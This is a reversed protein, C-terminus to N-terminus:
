HQNAQAQRKRRQSERENRLADRDRQVANKLSNLRLQNADIPKIPKISPPKAPKSPAPITNSEIARTHRKPHRSPQNTPTASPAPVSLLCDMGYQYQFLLRAHIASDAFVATKVPRGGIKITALYKNMLINLGKSM